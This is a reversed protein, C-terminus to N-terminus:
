LVLKQDVVDGFQYIQSYNFLYNHDFTKQHSDDDFNSRGQAFGDDFRVLLGGFTFGYLDLEKSYPPCFFGNESNTFEAICVALRVCRGM